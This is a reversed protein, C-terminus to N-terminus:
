GCGMGDGQCAAGCPKKPISLKSIDHGAMVQNVVEEILGEVRHVEVGAEKLLALPKNGVGSVLISSCHHLKEGLQRWREDGSGQDPTQITEIQQIGDDTKGFILLERAEGLHQNVFLGEMSAVAVYPRKGNSPPGPKLEVTQSSAFTKVMEMDEDSMKEGILGIADARCRACHSMLPLHAKVTEKVAVMTAATPVHEPGFAALQNEVMAMPNMIDVGLSKMKQAIDGVEQDNVGQIIVTNVKVMIGKAKLQSIAKLQNTILLEGAAEGTHVRKGYRVWAYIKAATSPQLTNVTITVHAMNLSALEEVYDPVNLGNSALCLLMDPYNARILKLTEITEKPNALPDGPGAIGAVTINPKKKMLYDFYALAQEPQMVSSTVGPRSENVCDFSRNCFNCQLNCRPAVPLHVRGVQHRVKENFCPHNELNVSM